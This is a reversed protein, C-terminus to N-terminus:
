FDLKDENLQKIALGTFTFYHTIDYNPSDAPVGAIDAPSRTDVVFFCWAGTYHDKTNTQWRYVGGTCRPYRLSVLTDGDLAMGYGVTPENLFSVGFEFMDEADYEGWGASSFQARVVALRAVNENNRQRWAGEERRYLTM